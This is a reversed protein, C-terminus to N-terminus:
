GDTLTQGTISRFAQRIRKVSVPGDVGLPQAFVSMRLEEIMWAIDRLDHGRVAPSDMAAAVVREIPRVEAM